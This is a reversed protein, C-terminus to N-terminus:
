QGKGYKLAFFSLEPTPTLDVWVDKGDFNFMNLGQQNALKVFKERKQDGPFDLWGNGVARIWDHQNIWGVVWGPCSDQKDLTTINYKM